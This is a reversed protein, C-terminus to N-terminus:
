QSALTYTLTLLYTGPPDTALNSSMQYDVPVTNGTTCSGGRNGTVVTLSAAPALPLYAGAGTRVALQNASKVPDTQTGTPTYTFAPGGPQVTLKWSTNSTVGFTTAALNTKVALGTTASYDAAVFAFTVSNTNVTLALTSAITASVTVQQTQAPLPSGILVSAACCLILLKIKM